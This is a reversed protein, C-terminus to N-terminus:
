LLALLSAVIEVSYIVLVLGAALSGSGCVPIGPQALHSESVVLPPRYQPLERSRSREPGAAGPVGSSEGRCWPASRGAAVPPHERPGLASWARGGAYLDPRMGCPNAMLGSLRGRELGMAARMLALLSPFCLPPPLCGLRRFVRRAERVKTLQAIKKSMKFHLDPSHEAGLGAQASGSGLKGAGPASGGGYGHQPQQWGMGPTAMKM